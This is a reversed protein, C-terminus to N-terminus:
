LVLFGSAAGYHEFFRDIPDVDFELNGEYFCFVPAASFKGDGDPAFEDGACDVHLHEWDVEREPHTLLMSGVEFAGLLFENESVIAQARRDSRGRHRLGFQAPVVMIDGGFPPNQRDGIVQLMKATKPHRRLNNAGFNWGYSNQFRRKSAIIELVRRVAQGYTPAIKQWRPLVFWGEANAPLAKYLSQWHEDRLQSINPFFEGLIEVQEMLSKPKYFKPYTFGSQVEENKFFHDEKKSLWKIM